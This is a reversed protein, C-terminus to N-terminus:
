GRVGVYFMAACDVLGDKRRTFLLVDLERAFM